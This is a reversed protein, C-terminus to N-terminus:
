KKAPEAKVAEKQATAPNSADGWGAESATKFLWKGDKWILTSVAVWTHSTKGMSQKHKEVVSVLADSLYHIETKVEQKMDKPMPQAFMPTMEKVWQEKSWTVGMYEGKANDTGMYVPFDHMAAVAAVDQKDCAEKMAKYAAEIGKDDKKIVPRSWPGVKSMDPAEAFAVASFSLCAIVLSSKLM